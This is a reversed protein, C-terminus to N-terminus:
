EEISNLQYITPSHGQVMGKIHVDSDKTADIAQKKLEEYNKVFWRLYKYYKDLITTDFKTFQSAYKVKLYVKLFDLIVADTLANNRELSRYMTGYISNENSINLVYELTEGWWKLYFPKDNYKEGLFNLVKKFITPNDNKFQKITNLLNYIHYKPKLLNNMQSKHKTRNFNSKMANKAYKVYESANLYSPVRYNNPNKSINSNMSELQNQLEKYIKRTGYNVAANQIYNKHLEYISPAYKLKGYPNKTVPASTHSVRSSFKPNVSKSLRSITPILQRRM